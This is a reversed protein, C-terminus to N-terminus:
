QATGNRLMRGPLPGNPDVMDQNNQRLLVGNVIVADIGVADSVLRDAGGPLDYVRRLPSDGVTDRDFVVVDAAMGVALTGRGHIGFVEAPRSTIMRVAKELSLVGKERVWRRLLYTTLCADCLQSAHAGADSLGIVTDESQLLEEVQSEDHNAVPSRFRATLNSELGLDFLTEVPTKGLEDALEFVNKENLDPRGPMESIVTAAFSERFTAPVKTDMRTWFAARFEPDAYIAKKGEFDAESVPKFMRMAEFVFPASLQYEFNLARPTVQPIVDYGDAILERSRALQESATGGNLNAGALLATWTVPGGSAKNLEMFHEFTLDRGVTAQIIGGKGTEKIVGALALMEDIDAARSPVPKGEYGVHTSSKSTAFGLAGAELAERVIERMSLLEADTATRETADLGMVYTRLATHGILAGVNIAIGANEIADMYEPFSEFPWQEGLGAQLAAVTMGEVNELTRIIVDRHEPRTPAVSFGCNGMVATTVGHWPSITLMRDWIIQADYHTHIDIFGPSIVHGGADITDHAPMEVEGIAVIKGDKIGVSGAYGPSGTGDVIFGNQILLDLKHESM